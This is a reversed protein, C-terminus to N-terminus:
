RRGRRRSPRARGRGGRRRPRRRGRGRPSPCARGGAGRPAAAARLGLPQAVGLDGVSRSTGTVVTSARSWRARLASRRSYAVTVPSTRPRSPGAGDEPPEAVRALMARLRRALAPDLDAGDGRGERDAGGGGGDHEHGPRGRRRWTCAPAVGSPPPSWRRRDVAAAAAVLATGDDGLRRRRRGVGARRGVRGDGGPGATPRRARRRRCRGRPVSRPGVAPRPSAARPVEARRRGADVSGIAVPSVSSNARVLGDVKRRPPLAWSASGGGAPPEGSTAGAARGGERRPRPAPWAGGVRRASGAGALDTGPPRRTSPTGRRRLATSRRCRCRCGVARVKSRM